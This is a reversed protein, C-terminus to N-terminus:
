ARTHAAQSTVQVGLVTGSTVTMENWVGHKVIILGAMVVTKNGTVLLNGPQHTRGLQVVVFVKALVAFNHGSVSRLCVRTRICHNRSDNGELTKAPTPQM